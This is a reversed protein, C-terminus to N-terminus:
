KIVPAALWALYDPLGNSIGVAVVEPLEYPHEKVIFAELALYQTQTTKILLLSEDSQERKGQWEYVAIINPLINVCAGLKRDIIKGALTQAVAINPCTNFVLLYEAQNQM